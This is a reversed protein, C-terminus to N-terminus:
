IDVTMPPPATRESRAIEFSIFQWDSITTHNVHEATENLLLLGLDRLEDSDAELLRPPINPMEIDRAESRDTVTVEVADDAASLEVRLARDAEGQETLHTFVEELCLELQNAARPTLRMSQASQQAFQQLAPLEEADARGRWRYRKRLSLRFLASLVIAIVSSASIANGAIPELADPMLEAFFLGNQAAFGGWFSIGIILTSRPTIGGSAALQLGTVFLLLMTVFTTGGIAALPLDLVFGTLVPFFALVMMILAGYLAVYRSGVGIVPIMGTPSSYTTNPTTCMIGALANGVADANLSGRVAEYDIKRFDRLSVRQVAIADGVTEFTGSLTAIVFAGLVAFAEANAPFTPAEWEGIPFGVVASAGTQTFHWDGTALATLCGAALGAIPSWLRYRIPAWVIMAVMVLVSVAGILLFEISGDNPTGAGQWQNLAIPVVLVAVSMVIVGGVVPTFIHRLVRFFHAVLWEVPAAALALAAVFGIGALEIADMTAAFFAGSTGMFLMYGSGVRGIRIAQVATSLGATLLTAAVLFAAQDNTVLGQARLLIPLFIAGSIVFLAFQLGLGLGLLLPPREDVAYRLTPARQQM